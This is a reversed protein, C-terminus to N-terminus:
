SIYTYVCVPLIQNLLVLFCASVGPSVPTYFCLSLPTCVVPSMPTIVSSSVPLDNAMYSNCLTTYNLKIFGDKRSRITHLIIHMDQFLIVQTLKFFDNDHHWSWNHIMIKWQYCSLINFSFGKPLLSLECAM